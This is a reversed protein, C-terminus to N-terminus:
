MRFDNRATPLKIPVNRIVHQRRTSSAAGLNVRWCSGEERWAVEGGRVMWMKVDESQPRLVEEKQKWEKVQFVCSILCALLETCFIFHM